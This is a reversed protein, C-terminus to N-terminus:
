PVEEVLAPSDNSPDNVATSVPYARLRDAPCPALLDRAGDASERLWQRERGEPLIVAMRHHLDGVVDNPETTVITFTEVVAGDSPGDASEDGASGTFADLGTQTTEPKWQAWLGAMVFPGDDTLTVRYPQTGGHADTWEYFGDAPVLCRGVGLPGDTAQHFADGFSAKRGITEARANIHGGEDRSGAWPPILGWEMSQLTEPRDDTIVPLSQSPAANYRPEYAGVDALDFRDALREPPVFLSYRGCM